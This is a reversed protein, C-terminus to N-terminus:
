VITISQTMLEEDYEDSFCPTLSRVSTQGANPTSSPSADKTVWSMICSWPWTELSVTSDEQKAYHYHKFVIHNTVWISETEQDITITVLYRTIDSFPVICQYVQDNQICALAEPLLQMLEKLIIVHQRFLMRKRDLILQSGNPTQVGVSAMSPLPDVRKKWAWGGVAAVVAAAPVLVSWSSGNSQASM